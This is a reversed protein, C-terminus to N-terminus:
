YLWCMRMADNTITAVSTTSASGLRAQHAGTFNTHSVFIYGTQSTAGNLLVGGQIPHTTTWNTGDPTLDFGYVVNSTSAGSAHVTPMIILDSNQPIDFAVGSTSNSTATTVWSLDAPINISAYHQTAAIAVAAGMALLAACVIAAVGRRKARKRNGIESKRNEEALNTKM